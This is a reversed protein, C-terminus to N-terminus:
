ELEDLALQPELTGKLRRRQLEHFDRCHKGLLELRHHITGRACRLVRAAQRHTVKSAFAFFAPETLEPRRLGYDLRFSQDSFFRACVTCCYRQVIRGDVKRRFVGRCQYSFGGRLQSACLPHPCCPPTFM